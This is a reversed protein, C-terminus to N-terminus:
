SVASCHFFSQHMLLAVVASKIGSAHETMARTIVPAAPASIAAAVGQSPNERRVRNVWKV